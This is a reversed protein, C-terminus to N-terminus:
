HTNPDPLPFKTGFATLQTKVRFLRRQAVETVTGSYVFEDGCRLVAPLKHNTKTLPELVRYAMVGHGALDLSLGYLLKARPHTLCSWNRRQRWRKKGTVGAIPM